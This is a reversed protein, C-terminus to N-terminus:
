LRQPLHSLLRTRYGALTPLSLTFPCNQDLILEYAAGLNSLTLTSARRLNEEAAIYLHMHFMVSAFFWSLRELSQVSEECKFVELITQNGEIQGTLYNSSPKRLLNVVSQRKRLQWRWEPKSIYHDPSPPLRPAHSRFNISKGSTQLITSIFIKMAPRVRM